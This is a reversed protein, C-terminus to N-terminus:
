IRVGIVCVDDVQELDGRWNEFAEDIALRQEEMSKDQISLLLAKFAKSKFKKGKEGGFQDAYGDSFLYLCDGKQVQIKHTTFNDMKLYIAVPMKDAKTEILEDGRILYLPNYAGAFQLKMEELDLICLAMDMGDKAEGAKGSQRLAAKIQNRLEELIQNARTIEKRRVIENLLAVGLMSMFAGPVGHGTCDAATFVVYKDIQKLWYFDGSVIDRPKFLIFHEPLVKEILEGPPLVATQIRKAYQISDTIAQKQEAIQDRQERIEKTRKKIIKELRINATKLRRSNLRVFIPLACTQVGTM